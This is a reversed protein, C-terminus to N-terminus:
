SFQDDYLSIINSWDYPSCILRFNSRNNEKTSIIAHRLKELFGNYDKYFLQPNKDIHYLDPYTLRNPLIPYAGCYIGEMVSIGFFDHYSTVPLIDGAQMWAVYDNGSVFGQTVINEKLIELAEFCIDPAGKHVDGLLAVKYDYGEAKLQILAKFFDEPNKDYEFRHNWLILPERFKYVSPVDQDFRKLNVGIPLIMSKNKLIDLTKHRQDPMAKLLTDLHSYFSDHNHKSNFFIQDAVLASNYNIFGYHVDRKLRRDESHEKWPYELQNEHFYLCIKAKLKHRTFSIFASLDLMDSALIYDPEPMTNYKEALTHAAGYMRWKWYKGPLSLVEINHKSYKIFNDIWTKHSGSYFPEIILIKM